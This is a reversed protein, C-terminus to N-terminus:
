RGCPPVLDSVNAAEKIVYQPLRNVTLYVRGVYEGIVGLMFLTTGGLFLMVSMISPFGAMIAPNQLKSIIIVVTFGFGFLAMVLGLYSSLRLPVVSFGTIGNLVLAASKKLTFGSRRVQDTKRAVLPVTIINSTISLILGEVYPYPSTYQAMRKCVFAQMANFNSFKLHKPKDLIRSMLFSNLESGLRKWLSVHRNEYSATAFDCQKALVPQLLKWLEQTPCQLDDDLDIVFSGTVFQYGALMAAHKGANKALGIAKIQPDLKARQSLIKYTKDSSCDDVAIIEYDYGDKTKTNAIIEDLVKEITMESNFCPIVFSLLTNPM